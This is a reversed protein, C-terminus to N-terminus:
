EYARSSRPGASGDHFIKSIPRYPRERRRGDRMSRIAQDLDGRGFSRGAARGQSDPPPRLTNESTTQKGKVTSESPTAIDEEVIKPTSTGSKVQVDHVELAAKQISSSFSLIMAFFEEPKTADPGEAVEGYFSLLAKLEDDLSKSMKKIADVTPTSAVAFPQMVVVFRDGPVAPLSQTRALEEKMIGLGSALSQITAMVTPVSVRAAAELHPVDEIFTVLSPDSRLLVKALYHLLTPCDSGGAATRTEKMKLLAELRFGRANGRFSSGNLANGVALIAQLVQKFKVSARLEHSANRVISLEPRIEEIEIELKRRYLMCELRESLRPITMIHSFYQDAKALKGVDDFDKIRVMEESTPLQKGIAKLDDTSLKDDDLGLLASRIDPLSLKIRSLM